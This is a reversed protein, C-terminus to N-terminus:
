IVGHLLTRRSFIVTLFDSGYIHVWLNKGHECPGTILSYNQPPDIWDADVFRLEKLDTNTNGGM